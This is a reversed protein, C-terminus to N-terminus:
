KMRHAPKPVKQIQFAGDQVYTVGTANTSGTGM